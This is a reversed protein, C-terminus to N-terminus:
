RPLLVVNGHEYRERLEHTVFVGNRYEVPQYGRETLYRLTTVPDAAGEIEVDGVEVSVIPRVGSLIREMGRLVELEASEADIKVFDPEIGSRSVFGDLTVADVEYTHPSPVAEDPRSRPEFASNLASFRWSYDNFTLKTEESWVAAPEVRVNTRDGVNRQLLSRSSPTPEFSVVQGSAGVLRSALLTFYGVHAGVDFFVDGEHLHQLLAATVDPEIHGHEFIAISIPEPLEVTMREGWFTRARM